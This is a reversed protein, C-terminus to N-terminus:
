GLENILQPLVKKIKLKTMAQNGDADLVVILITNVPANVGSSYMMVTSKPTVIIMENSIELGIRGAADNASRLIDTFTAGVVALDITKSESLTELLEGTYDLVGAALFGKVNKFEALLENLSM